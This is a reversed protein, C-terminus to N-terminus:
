AQTFKHIPFEKGEFVTGFIKIEKIKVPDIKFPNEALLVFDAKKGVAIAGIIKEMKISKAAEITIAKLGTFVSVKEEPSLVDGNSNIRNIASWALVLPEAPAM